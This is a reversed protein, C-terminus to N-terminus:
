PPDPKSDEGELGEDLLAARLEADAQDFGRASEVDGKRICRNREQRLLDFLKDFAGM